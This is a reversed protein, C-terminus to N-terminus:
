KQVTIVWADKFGYKAKILTRYDQAEKKTKFVQDIQVIYLDSKGKAISIDKKLMKGSKESFAQANDNNNFAGIQVMYYTNLENETKNETEQTNESLPEEIYTSDTKLPASVHLENKLNDDKVTSSSSCACYLFPLLFIAFFKSYKNM